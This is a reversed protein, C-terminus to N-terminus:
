LNINPPNGSYISIRDDETLDNCSSSSYLDYWGTVKVKNFGCTPFIIITGNTNASYNSSSGGDDYIKGSCTTITNTGTLPLNWSQAYGKSSNLILFGSIILLLKYIFPLKM